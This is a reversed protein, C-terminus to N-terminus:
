PEDGSPTAGDGWVADDDVGLRSLSFRASAKVESSAEPDELKARARAIAADREEALTTVRKGSANEARATGDDGRAGSTSVEESLLSSPIRSESPDPPVGPHKPKAKASVSASHKSKGLVTSANATAGHKTEELVTGSTQKGILSAIPTPEGKGRGNRPTDARIQAARAQGGLRGSETKTARERLVQAKSKSYQLFDHILYGNPTGNRELQGVDVLAEVVLQAEDVTLDALKAIQRLPIHGDTLHRNCWSIALTLVGIGVVKWSAPPDGEQDALLEVKPHDYLTDDLKGWPM